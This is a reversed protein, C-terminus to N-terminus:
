HTASFISRVLILGSRLINGIIWQQLNLRFEKFNGGSMWEMSMKEVTISLLYGNKFSLSEKSQKRSKLDYM